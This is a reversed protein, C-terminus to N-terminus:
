QLEEEGEIPTQQEVELQEQASNQIRATELNEEVRINDEVIGRSELNMIDNFFLEALKKGSVHTLVSPDQGLPSNAFASLEQILSAREAFHRAGVPKLKGKAKIDEKTIDIFMVAGTEEDVVSIQEGTDMNRRAVEFMANVIPELFVQEFHNIKAQFMRSAGNQLSQVEFATKEGATRFGMAERPSGAMMEMKQELLGIQNDANLATADPRMFEVSGDDGAYIRANPGYDYDDVNGKVLQVPFAILDFVDAKLNELHDIRYQMGVLNDLPGMAMLNDPRERWGVHKKYSTGLWSKNAEKRIVYSRDVVTIIHDELLEGTDHNYVDGEFELLEVWGSNYYDQLSDFGDVKLGHNKEVFASSQVQSQFSVRKERIKDVIDQYFGLEPRTRAEKVLDGLSKVIRTVKPASAYDVASIDFVHDYPSIRDVVPGVYKNILEKTEPDEKVEKAFTVGAFVNGYDIYDYVLKSVTAPFNIQELKNSMFAQIAKAKEKSVSDEDAGEWKLWQRNPFLAAMYNAHLNDRIQCLKPLTTTNQWPTASNKTKSTDTAFIYARLEKKEEEWEERDAKWKNWLDTIHSALFEPELFAEVDFVKTAM